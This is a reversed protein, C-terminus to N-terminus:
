DLTPSTVIEHIDMGLERPDTGEGIDRPIFTATQLHANCVPQSLTGVFVIQKPSLEALKFPHDCVELRPRLSEPHAFPKKTAWWGDSLVTVKISDSDAPRQIPFTM